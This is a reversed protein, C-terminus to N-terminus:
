EDDQGGGLPQVPEPWTPLPSAPLEELSQVRRELQNVVADSSLTVYPPPVPRLLPGGGRGIVGGWTELVDLIKVTLQTRRESLVRYDTCLLAYQEIEHHERAVLIAHKEWNTGRVAARLEVVAEDMRNEGLLDRIHDFLGFLARGQGVSISSSVAVM